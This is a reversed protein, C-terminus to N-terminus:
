HLHIGVVVRLRAPKARHHGRAVVQLYSPTADRALTEADTDGQRSRRLGSATQSSFDSRFCLDHNRKAIDNLFIGITRKTKLLCLSNCSSSSLNMTMLIKTDDENHARLYVLGFVRIIVKAFRHVCELTTDEGTHLNQRYLRNSHWICDNVYNSPDKSEPSIWDARCREKPSYFFCNDECGEM